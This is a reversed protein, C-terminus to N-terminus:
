IQWVTVSTLFVDGGPSNMIITVENSSNLMDSFENLSYISDDIVDTIYIDM